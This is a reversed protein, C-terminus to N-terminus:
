YKLYKNNVRKIEVERKQGINMLINDLVNVYNQLYEKRNWLNISQSKRNLDKYIM